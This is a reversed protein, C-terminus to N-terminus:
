RILQCNLAYAGPNVIRLVGQPNRNRLQQRRKIDAMSKVLMSALNFSFELRTGADDRIHGVRFDMYM